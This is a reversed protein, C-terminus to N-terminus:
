RHDALRRRAERAEPSEPFGAILAEWRAKGKAPDKKAELDGLQLLAAAAYTGKPAAAVSRELATAGEAERGQALLMRARMWDPLGSLRELPQEWELQRLEGLATELDKTRLSEEFTLVHDGKALGPDGRFVRYDKGYEIERYAAEAKAREGRFLLLDAQRIRAWRLFDTRVDKMAVAAELAKAPEDLPGGLDLLAEAQRVLARVKWVPDKAAQAMYAFHPAARSADGYGLLLLDGYQFAADATKQTEIPPVRAFAAEYAKVADLRREAQLYLWALQLDAAPTLAYPAYTSVAELYERGRKEAGDSGMAWFPQVRVQQTVEGAEGSALAVRLTVKMRGNELYVHRPKSGDGTVGDGFTWSLSDAKKGKPLAERFQVETIEQGELGLDSTISWDFDASFKAGRREIAGANGRFGGVFATEPIGTWQTQGPPRWGCLCGQGRAGIANYYDIQHIGKDLDVAGHHEGNMGRPDHNGPWGIVLKGDIAVFSADWSNTAFEYHGFEDVHLFGTFVAIYNYPRGYPNFGMSISRAPGRGMVKPSAALQARFAEWTDANGKGAERTELVLGAHPEYAEKPPQANTNGFYIWTPAKADKVPFVISVRDEDGVSLIRYPTINGRVIVRIDDLSPLCAGGTTFTVLCADSPERGQVAAIGVVPRRCTWASDWWTDEASAISAVLLLPM